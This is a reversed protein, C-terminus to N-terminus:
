KKSQFEKISICNEKGDDKMNEEDYEKIEENDNENFTGNIIETDSLAGYIINRMTQKLM